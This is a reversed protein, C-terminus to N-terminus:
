PTVSPASDGTGAVGAQRALAVGGHAVIDGDVGARGNQAALGDDALVGYHPAVGEKGVGHGVVGPNDDGRRLRHELVGSRAAASAYNDPKERIKHM